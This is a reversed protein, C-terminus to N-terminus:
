EEGDSKEKADKLEKRIRDKDGQSTGKKVWDPCEGLGNTAWGHEDCEGGVTGKEENVSLIRFDDCYLCVRTEGCNDGSCEKNMEAASAFDFPGDSGPPGDEGVDGTPCGTPGMEKEPDPMGGLLQRLYAIENVISDLAKHVEGREGKSLAYVDGDSDSKEAGPKREEEMATGVMPVSCVPCKMASCPTGRVSPTRFGCKPCICYGDSRSIGIGGDWETRRKFVYQRSQSSVLDWGDQGMKNLVDSADDTVELHLTKYEFKDGM